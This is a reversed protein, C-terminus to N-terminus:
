VNVFNTRCSAFNALFNSDDGRQEFSDFPTKLLSLAAASQLNRYRHWFPRADAPPFAPCLEHGYHRGHRPTGSLCLRPAVICSM